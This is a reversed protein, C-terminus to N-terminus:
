NRIIWDSIYGFVEERHSIHEQEGESEVTETLWHDMGPIVRYTLNTKGLRLFELMIYDAHLVPSNRDASGGVILIPINLKVLHELPIDNCFSGWRKYPHGYYWKETSEPDSYIRQYVAFLSDIAEQAEHHTIRGAAADMRSNIISSYFQNLGSGEVSVLHTILGCEEALKPVMQGGESLGVAIVKGSSNPLTRTLSEIVRTSAELEWDMGCKQIYEEPPPYDELNQLPNIEDVEFTDCFPTGPKSIFAVHYRDAFSFIQDPPVTGIQLSEEGSQVVLMIPLGRVGSVMFLIPKDLDLGKETVYYDIRGLQPDDMRFARLGWDEPHVGQGSLMSTCCLLFLSIYTRMSLVNPISWILFNKAIQHILWGPVNSKQTSIDYM